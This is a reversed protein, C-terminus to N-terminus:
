RCYYGYSDDIWGCSQGDAACDHSKFEGADCWEASDGDCRGLFDLGACPDAACYVGTDAQTACTEGCEGCRRERLVGRDCWRAVGEECAGFGDIGRCPDAVALCRFAEASADWGCAGTCRETELVGAECWTAAGSMCRGEATVSGCPTPGTPAPTGVHSVIWDRHSDVRTYNDRGVCSEDGDALAGAVRVTGDAALVMVPGGSDGFCVGRRGEGDITLRDGSLAVIPEATFKRTGSSGTETRGYGSAEATRGLWSDDMDEMLISVPVVDPFRATADQDLHVLTMDAGGPADFVESSGFCVDSSAPDRGMCFTAGARLGCHNATLVWTPAILLGSCGSFQGVALVQGATMPLHTPELTGFYVTPVIRLDGCEDPPISAGGDSTGSGSDSTTGADASADPAGPRADPPPGGDMIHITPPETPLETPPEKRDVGFEPQATCALLGGVLPFVLLTLRM